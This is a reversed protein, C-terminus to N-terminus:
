RSWVKVWRVGVCVATGLRSRRAQGSRVGVSRMVGFRSRRARGAQGRCLAGLRLEDYRMKDSRSRWVLVPWAQAAGRSVTGTWVPGHGSRRFMGRCVAVYRVPDRGSRRLMDLRSWFILDPPLSYLGGRIAATLVSM